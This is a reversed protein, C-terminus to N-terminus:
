EHNIGRIKNLEKGVEVLFDKSTIFDMLSIADDVIEKEEPAILYYVEDGQRMKQM